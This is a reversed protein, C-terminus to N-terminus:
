QLLEPHYTDHGWAERVWNKALSPQKGHRINPMLALLDCITQLRNLFDNSQECVTRLSALFCFCSLRSNAACKADTYTWRFPQTM